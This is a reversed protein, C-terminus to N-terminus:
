PSGIGLGLGLWASWAVVFGSSTVPAGQAPPLFPNADPVRLLIPESPESAGAAVASASVSLELLSGPARDRLWLRRGPGEWLLTPRAQKPNPDPNPNPNPNPSPGPNPSPNPNPRSRRTRWGPPTLVSRGGRLGPAQEKEDALRDEEEM